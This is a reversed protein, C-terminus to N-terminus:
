LITELRKKFALLLTANLVLSHPLSKNRHRESLCVHICACMHACMYVFVGDGTNPPQMNFRLFGRNTSLRQFRKYKSVGKSKLTTKIQERELYYFIGVVNQINIEYVSAEPLAKIRSCLFSNNMYCFM